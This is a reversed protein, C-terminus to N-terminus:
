DLVKRKFMSYGEYKDQLEFKDRLKDITTTYYGTSRFQCLLQYIRKSYKSKLELAIRLQYTTFNDKLDFLYDEMVRSLELEIIRESHIYRASALVGVQM